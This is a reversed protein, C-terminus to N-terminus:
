EFYVITQTNSRLNFNSGIQYFFLLVQFSVNRTSTKHLSYVVNATMNVARKLFIIDLGSNQKTGFPPNMIVTDFRRRFPEWFKESSEDAINAQIFNFKTCSQYAELESSEDDSNFTDNINQLSARLAGGDIDFGYVLAAGCLLSGISLRGTGCGLDAVFKDEIDGYTLDITNLMLAAIHPPTAYQELDIRPSEFDNLEQLCSELQKISPRKNRAAM